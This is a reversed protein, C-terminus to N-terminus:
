RKSPPSRSWGIMSLDKRTPGLNIFEAAMVTSCASCVAEEDNKIVRGRPEPCETFRPYRRNM